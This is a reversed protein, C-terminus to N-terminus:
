QKKLTAVYTGGPRGDHNGDIPRGQADLVLAADISLQLTQHPVKGRPTLTISHAAPDYAVAALPVPKNGRPSITSGRSVAVLHYASPDQSDASDLAASFTVLLVRTAKRHGARRTQWGVGQITVLPAPPPV